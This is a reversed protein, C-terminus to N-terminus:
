KWSQEIGIYGQGSKHLVLPLWKELNEKPPLFIRYDYTHLAEYDLIGCFPYLTPSFRQIREFVPEFAEIYRRREREEILPNKKIFIQTKEIVEKMHETHFLCNMFLFSAAQECEDPCQNIKEIFEKTTIFPVLVDALIIKLFDDKVTRLNHYEQLIRTKPTKTNAVVIIELSKKEM